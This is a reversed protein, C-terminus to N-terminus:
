QSANTERRAAWKSRISRVCGSVFHLFAQAPVRRRFGKRDVQIVENTALDLGTLYGTGFCYTDMCVLHGLDLIDGSAQPTHGVYVRKGSCHPEPPTSGIHTWYRLADAQQDMRLTPEYCAHVFIAERTEYHPLLERLFEQHVAPIKELSGGYSTVTARGGSELWVEPDTGNYAVSWLMIEHNGRLAIVRCQNQLEILQEIVGKSDPGRDVYDGLFILEDDAEPAITEILTRLAKSCGHIDGIVFRRM